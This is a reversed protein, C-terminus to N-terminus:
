KAEAVVFKKEFKMTEPNLVHTEVSLGHKEFLTKAFNNLQEQRGKMQDMTQMFQVQAVLAQNEMRKFTLQDAPDIEPLAKSADVLTKVQVDSVNTQCKKCADGTYAGHNPCIAM